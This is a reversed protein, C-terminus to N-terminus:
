APSKQGGACSPYPAKEGPIKPCLKIPNLAKLRDQWKTADIKMPQDSPAGREAWQVTYIDAKGKIVVIMTTESTKGATTPLVGCSVVATATEYGDVGPESLKKAAYSFPCGRRFHAALANLYGQATAGPKSALDKKGTLTVMQTWNNVNEGKLVSEQIYFDAKTNEFAFMFGRPYSLKVLGGFIPTIAVVSHGNERYRDLDLADASEGSILTAIAVVVVLKKM